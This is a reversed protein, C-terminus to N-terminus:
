DPIAGQKPYLLATLQYALLYHITLAKIGMSDYQKIMVLGPQSHTLIDSIM